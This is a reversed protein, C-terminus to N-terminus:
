QPYGVPIIYLSEHAPPLSLVDKVEEDSFAGIPVSGLGLAVAELHIDDLFNDRLSKRTRM